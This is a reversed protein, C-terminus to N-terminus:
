LFISTSRGCGGTDDDDDDPPATDDDDDPPTTDDDDDDGPIADCVSPWPEGTEDTGYNETVSWTDIVAGDTGVATVTVLEGVVEVLLFHHLKAQAISWPEDDLSYLDAGGGGTVFYTVDNVVNRQYNHDHSGFHATIDYQEFLPSLSNRYRKTSLDSGHNAASYSSYHSMVVVHAIGPADQADALQTEVWAQQDSGDAYSQSIDVMIFLTNGYVFTYRGATEGSAMVNDFYREFRSRGFVFEHNGMTPAIPLRPSIVSLADWYADWQDQDGGNDVFDGLQIMFDPAYTEALELLGRLIAPNNRTDGVVIFKFPTQADGGTIFSQVTGTGGDDVRYYYRTSPALDSLVVQHMGDVATSSVAIGVSEDTGWHLTAQSQDSEWKVTAACDSPTM